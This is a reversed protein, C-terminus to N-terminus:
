KCVNATKSITRDLRSSSNLDTQTSIAHFSGNTVYGARRALPVRLTTYLRARRYILSKNLPTEFLINLVLYLPLPSMAKFESSRMMLAM